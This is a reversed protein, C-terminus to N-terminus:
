ESREKVRHGDALTSVPDLVVKTGVEPGDLLEVGDSTTAGLQVPVSRVKGNELVFVVGQGSRQAVAKAPRTQQASATGAAPSVAVVLVAIFARNM